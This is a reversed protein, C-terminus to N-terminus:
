VHYPQKWQVTARVRNLVWRAKDVTLTLYALLFMYSLLENAKMASGKVLIYNQFKPYGSYKNKSRASSTTTSWNDFENVKCYM